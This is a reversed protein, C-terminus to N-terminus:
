PNRVTAVLDSVLSVDQPEGSAIVCEKEKSELPFILDEEEKMRQCYQTMAQNRSLSFMM